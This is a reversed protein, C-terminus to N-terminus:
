TEKGSKRLIAIVFDMDEWAGDCLEVVSVWQQRRVTCAHRSRAVWEGTKGIVITKVGAAKLNRQFRQALRLEEPSDAPPTSHGIIVLNAPVVPPKGTLAYFAPSHGVIVVAGPVSDLTAILQRRADLYIQDGTKLPVWRVGEFGRLGSTDPPQISGAELPVDYSLRPRNVIRHYERADILVFGAVLVGLLLRARGLAEGAEIKLSGLIAAHALGIILVGLTVHSLQPQAIHSLHFATIVLFALALGTPVLVRARGSQTTLVKPTIVCAALAAVLVALALTFSPFRAYDAMKTLAPFGGHSTRAAGVSLPLKIAYYYLDGAFGPHALNVVGIVAALSAFGALAGLAAAGLNRLSFALFPMMLALPYLGTPNSKSLFAAVMLWVGAMHVLVVHRSSDRGICTLQLSLM